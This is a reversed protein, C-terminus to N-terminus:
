AHSLAFFTVICPTGFNIRPQKMKMSLYFVQILSMIKQWYLGGVTIFVTTHAGAHWMDPQRSYQGQCEAIASTREPVPDEGLQGVLSQQARGQRDELSKRDPVPGSQQVVTASNCTRFHVCFHTM